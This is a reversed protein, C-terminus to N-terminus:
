NFVQIFQNSEGIVNNVLNKQLERNTREDYNASSEDYNWVTEGTSCMKEPRMPKQEMIKSMFAYEFESYSLKGDANLDGIQFIREVDAKISEMLDACNSTSTIQKTYLYNVLEDKTIFGDYDTDLDSNYFVDKLTDALEGYSNLFQFSKIMKPCFESAFLDNSTCGSDAFIFSGSSTKFQSLIRACNVAHDVYELNDALVNNGIFMFYDCAKELSSMAENRSQIYSELLPDEVSDLPTDMYCYKVHTANLVSEARNKLERPADNLQVVMRAVSHFFKKSDPLGSEDKIAWMDPSRRIFGYSVNENTNVKGQPRQQIQYKNCTKSESDYEWANCIGMEDNNCSDYCQEKSYVSTTNKSNSVANFNYENENDGINTILNNNSKPESIDIQTFPRKQLLAFNAFIYFQNKINQLMAEDVTSVEMNNSDDAGLVDDPNKQKNFVFRVKVFYSFFAVLLIVAIITLLM